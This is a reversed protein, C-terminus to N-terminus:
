NKTTFNEMYKFLCTKTIDENRTFLPEPGHSPLNEVPQLGLYRDRLTSEPVGFVRAAEYVTMGDEKKAKYALGLKVTDHSRKKKVQGITPFQFLLSLFFM